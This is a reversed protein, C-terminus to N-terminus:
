YGQNISWSVPENLWIVLVSQLIASRYARHEASDLLSTCLHNGAEPLRQDKIASDWFLDMRDSGFLNKPPYLLVFYNYFILCAASGKAASSDCHWLYCCALIAQPYLWQPLTCDDWWTLPFYFIVGKCHSCILRMVSFFLWLFYKMPALRQVYCGRLSCGISWFGQSWFGTYVGPYWM